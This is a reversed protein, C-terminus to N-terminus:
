VEDRGSRKFRSTVMDDTIKQELKEIHVIYDNYSKEKMTELVKKNRSAELLENRKKEFFERLGKLAGEQAAIHRKVSSLYDHYMRIDSVPADKEKLGDAEESTKRYVGKLLSLKSEEEDLRKLAAAFEVQSLEELLKRFEYLPEQKFVFKKM